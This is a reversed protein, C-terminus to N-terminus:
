PKFPALRAALPFGCRVLQHFRGGPVARAEARIAAAFERKFGAERPHRRLVEETNPPAIDWLRLGVGDVMAGWQVYCGLAGDREPRIGATTHVCVADAM